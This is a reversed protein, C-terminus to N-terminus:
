RLFDEYYVFLYTDSLDRRSLNGYNVLQQLVSGYGRQSKQSFGPGKGIGAIISLGRLTRSHNLLVIFFQLPVTNLEHWQYIQATPYTAHKNPKETLYVIFNKLPSLM